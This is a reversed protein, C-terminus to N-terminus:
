LAMFICVALNNQHSQCQDNFLIQLFIVLVRGLQKLSVISSFIPDNRLDTLEHIGFPNVVWSFNM